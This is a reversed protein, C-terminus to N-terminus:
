PPTVLFPCRHQLHACGSGPRGLRALLPSPPAYRLPVICWRAGPLAGWVQLTKRDVVTFGALEARHVISNASGARVADPKVLALTKEMAGEDAM